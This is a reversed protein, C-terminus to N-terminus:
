ISMGTLNVIEIVSMQKQLVLQVKEYNQQNISLPRGIRKGMAKKLLQGAITKELITKRDFEALSAFHFAYTKRHAYNPM